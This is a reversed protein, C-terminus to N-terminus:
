IPVLAQLDLCRMDGKAKILHLTGIGCAEQLAHM